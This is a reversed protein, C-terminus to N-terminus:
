FRCYGEIYAERFNQFLDFLCEQVAKKVPYYLFQFNEDVELIFTSYSNSLPIVLYYNSTEKRRIYFLPLFINTLKVIHHYEREEENIEIEDHQHEVEEMNDNLYLSDLKERTIQFDELPVGKQLHQSFFEEGNILFQRFMEFLTETYNEISYLNEFLLFQNTFDIRKSIDFCCYELEAFNDSFISNMISHSQRYFRTVDKWDIDIQNTTTQLTIVDRKMRLDLINEGKMLNIKMVKFVNKDNKLVFCKMIRPNSKLVRCTYTIVCGVGCSLQFVEFSEVYLYYNKTFHLQKMEEEELEEQKRWLKNYPSIFSPHPVDDGDTTFFRNDEILNDLALHSTRGQHLDCKKITYDEMYFILLTDITESRGKIYLIKSGASLTLIESFTGRNLEYAKNKVFCIYHTTSFAFVGDIEERICCSPIVAQSDIFDPPLDPNYDENFKARYYTYKPYKLKKSSSLPPFARYGDRNFEYIYLDTKAEVDVKKRLLEERALQKQTDRVFDERLFEYFFSTDSQNSNNKYRKIISQEALTLLRKEAIKEGIKESILFVSNYGQIIHKYHVNLCKKFDRPNSSSLIVLTDADGTILYDTFRFIFLLTKDHEYYFSDLNHEVRVVCNGRLIFM